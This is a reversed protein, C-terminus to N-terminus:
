KKTNSEEPRSGESRSRPQRVMQQLVEILKKAAQSFSRGTKGIIGIDRTLAPKHLGIRRLDECPGSNVASEPLIAAGLGAHVMGIATSMYNAECALSISLGQEELAREFIQRVSSDMGTLILPYAVLDRLTVLRRQALPHTTPAFVCMRDTFLKEMTIERDPRLQTGIGFDVEGSKVLEVIKGAVVDRVRVVVGPYSEGFRRIVAPLLGAAISPLAAMTVLGRRLGALDRTTSMVAETDVLIRELPVLLDRGAQTLAVQRKNRDFLSLGLASELQQIQVTLAPQSVHLQSAARTFTGLRAVALFAKIHRTEYIM